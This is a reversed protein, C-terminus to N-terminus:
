SYQFFIFFHYFWRYFIKKNQNGGDQWLISDNPKHYYLVARHIQLFLNTWRMEPYFSHCRFPGAIRILPMGQTLCNWGVSLPEKISVPEWFLLLCVDLEKAHTDKVTRLVDNLCHNHGRSGKPFRGAFNRTVTTVGQPLTAPLLREHAKWAASEKKWKLWNGDISSRNWTERVWQCYWCAEEEGERGRSPM